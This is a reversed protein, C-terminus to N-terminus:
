SDTEDSNYDYKDAYPHPSDSVILDYGDPGLHKNLAPLYHSAELSGHSFLCYRGNRGFEYEILPVNDDDEELIYQAVSFDQHPKIGVEAAFALAGYVWNHAEAYTIEQPLIAGVRFLLDNIEESTVNFMWTADKVGVCWTDILYVGMTFSGQPHQRIVYINMLGSGSFAMKYCKQVPLQRVKSKIYQEPKLRRQQSVKTPLKKSM